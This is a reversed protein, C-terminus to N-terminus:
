QKSFLVSYREKIRPKERGKQWCILAIIFLIKVLLAIAIDRKSSIKRM